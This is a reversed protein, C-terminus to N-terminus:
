QLIDRAHQGWYPNNAHAAIAAKADFSPPYSSTETRPYTIFGGLYLREAIQMARHPGIGLRNSAAKLLEVTNLAKPMCIIEETEKISECKGGIGESVIALFTQAVSLDFVQRRSWNMHIEQGGVSVAADIYYYTEPTFSNIADSRHVCLQLTPTLM